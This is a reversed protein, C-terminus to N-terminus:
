FTSAMKNVIGLLVNQAVTGCGKMAAAAVLAIMAVILAYEILDQGGEDSGFRSLFCQFRQMPSKRQAAIVRFRRDM